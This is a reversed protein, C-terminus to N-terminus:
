RGSGAREAMRQAAQMTLIEWDHQQAVQQRALRATSSNAAPDLAEDLARSWEERSAPLLLQGPFELLSRIRSGVVPRGSALYEHLKLPYIYSTFYSIEYPMLCADFHQPYRALEWWPKAGLFHVNPLKRLDAVANAVEVRAKQAGVFVFQVDPRSAALWQLLPWDLHRTLYGSFGVRPHPISALDEPEPVPESFSRYNVGNPLFDTHPNFHGKREMLSRSVMFVQDANRLLRVEGEVLPTEVKSYSYEDDVHYVCRDFLKLDAEAAFSPDWVHLITKRCGSRLLLDRAHRLRRALTWKALSKFRSLRPLWFEPVYVQFGPYEAAPHKDCTRRTKWAALSHNWDHVPNVWVVRFYQALRMM